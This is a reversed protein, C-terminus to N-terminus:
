CEPTRQLNGTLAAENGRAHSLQVIDKGSLTQNRTPVNVRRVHPVHGLRNSDCDGWTYVNGDVLPIDIMYAYKETSM